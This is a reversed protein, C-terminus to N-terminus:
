FLPETLPPSVYRHGALVARIARVLHRGCATKLVFGNAGCRFAGAVYPEDANVSVVVVRTHPFSLRIRRTVELGNMGPMMLDTVLLDPQLQKILSLTTLGNESEGVLQFDAQQNLLKRLSQRVVPHDDALVLSYRSSTPEATFGLEVRQRMEPSFGTRLLPIDMKESTVRKFEPGTNRCPRSPPVVIPYQYKSYLKFASVPHNPPSLRNSRMTLSAQQTTRRRVSNPPM